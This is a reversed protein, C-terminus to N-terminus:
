FKKSVVTAWRTQGKCLETTARQQSMEMKGGWRACGREGYEVCGDAQVGSNGGLAWPTEQKRTWACHWEENKISFQYILLVWVVWLSEIVCFVYVQWGRWRQLYTVGEILEAYGTLTKICVSIFCVASKLQKIRREVSNCMKILGIKTFREVDM